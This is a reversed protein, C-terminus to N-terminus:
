PLSEEGLLVRSAAPVRSARECVRRMVSRARQLRSVVAVEAIGLEAAIESARLEELEFLVFTVRQAETMEDLGARLLALAESQELHREGSPATSGALSPDYACEEEVEAVLDERRRREQRRFGAVVRATTGLAFAREKDPQIDDLRRALVVLVEQMLDEINDSRAGLRRATRYIADLHAAVLAAFRRESEQERSLESRAAGPGRFPFRLTSFM